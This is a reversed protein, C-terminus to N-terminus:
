TKKEIVRRETASIIKRVRKSPKLKRLEDDKMIVSLLEISIKIVKDKAMNIDSIGYKSLKQLAKDKDGGHVIAGRLNYLDRILEYTYANEENSLLFVISTSIKFTTEPSDSILSEWVIFGDIISDYANDREFIAIHLRDITLKFKDYHLDLLGFWEEIIPVDSVSLLTNGSKSVCDMQHPHVLEIYLPVSKDKFSITLPKSTSSLALTISNILRDLTAKSSNIYTTSGSEDRKVGISDEAVDAVVGSTYTEQGNTVHCIIDNIFRYPNSPTRVNRLTINRITIEDAGTIHLGYIGYFNSITIREYSLIQLLINFQNKIEELFSDLQYDMRLCCNKFCRHLFPYFFKHSSTTATLNNDLNYGLFYNGDDLFFNRFKDDDKLIRILAEIQQDSDFPLDDNFPKDNHFRPKILFGSYLNTGIDLLMQLFENDAGVKPITAGNRERFSIFVGTGSLQILMTKYEIFDIYSKKNVIDQLCIDLDRLTTHQTTNFSYSDIGSSQTFSMNDNLIFNLFEEGLINVMHPFRKMYRNDNAVM